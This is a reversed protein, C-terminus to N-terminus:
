SHQFNVSFATGGSELDTPSAQLTGSGTGNSTGLEKNHTFWASLSFKNGNYLTVGAGTMRVIRTTGAPPSFTGYGAEIRAQDFSIGTGVPFFGKYLNGAVDRASVNITGDTRAYTVTETVTEGVKFGGGLSASECPGGVPCWQANNTDPAGPELNGNHYVDFAPFYQTDAPSTGTSIGVIVDWAKGARLSDQWGIGNTIDAYQDPTRLYATATIRQFQGGSAIYGACAGGDNTDCSAYTRPGTSGAAPLAAALLAALAAAAAAATRTIRALMVPEERTLDTRLQARTLHLHRSWQLIPRTTM